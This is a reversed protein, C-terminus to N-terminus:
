QEKDLKQKKNEFKIILYSEHQNFHLWWINETCDNDNAADKSNTWQRSCRTLFCESSTNKEKPALAVCFYKWKLKENVDFCDFVKAM